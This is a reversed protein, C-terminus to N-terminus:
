KPQQTCRIAIKTRVASSNVSEIQRDQDAFFYILSAPTLIIPSAILAAAFTATLKDM